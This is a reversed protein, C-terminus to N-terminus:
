EFRRTRALSRSVIEQVLAPDSTDPEFGQETLSDIRHEPGLATMTDLVLVSDVDDYRYCEPNSCPTLGLMGGIISLGACRVRHKIYAVRNPVNSRWYGPDTPATSVVGTNSVVEWIIYRWEPPPTILRDTILLLCHGDNTIGLLRRVAVALRKQDLTRSSPGTITSEPFTHKILESENPPDPVFGFTKVNSLSELTKWDSTSLDLDPAEANIYFRKFTLEPQLRKYYNEMEHLAAWLAPGYEASNKGWFFLLAQTFKRPGNAKGM